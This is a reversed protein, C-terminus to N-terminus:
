NNIEIGIMFKNFVEKLKANLEVAETLSLSKGIDNSKDTNIENLYDLMKQLENMVIYKTTKQTKKKTM